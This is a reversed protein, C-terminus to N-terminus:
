HGAKSVTGTSVPEREAPIEHLSVHV